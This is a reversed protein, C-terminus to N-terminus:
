TRKGVRVVNVIPSAKCCRGISDVDLWEWCDLELSLDDDFRLNNSVLKGRPLGAAEYAVM